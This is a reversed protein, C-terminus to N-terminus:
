CRGGAQRDDGAAGALHRHAAANDDTAALPAMPQTEVVVASLWSQEQRQKKSTIMPYLAAMMESVNCGPASAPLKHRPDTRVFSGPRLEVWSPRTRLLWVHIM